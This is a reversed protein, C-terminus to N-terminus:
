IARAVPARIHRAFTRARLVLRDSDPDARARSLSQRGLRQNRAGVPSAHQGKGVTLDVGLLRALAWIALAVAAAAAM